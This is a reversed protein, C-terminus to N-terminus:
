FLHLFVTDKNIKLIAFLITHVVEMIFPVLLLLNVPELTYGGLMDLVIIKASPLHVLLVALELGPVIYQFSQYVPFKNYFQM